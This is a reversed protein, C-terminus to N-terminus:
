GKIVAEGSLPMQPIDQLALPIQFYMGEMPQMGADLPSRLSGGAGGAQGQGQGLSSLQAVQRHQWFCVRDTGAQTGCLLNGSPCTSALPWTLEDM